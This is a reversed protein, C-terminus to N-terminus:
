EVLGEKDLQDILSQLETRLRPEDVEYEELMISVIEDVEKGDQLLEFMRKTSENELRIIGNFEDAKRGVAVAMYMGLMEKIAFNARLKM